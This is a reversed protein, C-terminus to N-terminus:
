MNSIWFIYNFYYNTRYIILKPYKVRIIQAFDKRQNEGDSISNYDIM